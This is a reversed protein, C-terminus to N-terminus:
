SCNISILKQLDTTEKINLGREDDNICKVNYM